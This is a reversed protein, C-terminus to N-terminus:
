QNWKPQGDRGHRHSRGMPCSGKVVHLVKKTRTELKAWETMGDSQQFDWSKLFEGGESSQRERWINRLGILKVAGSEKARGRELKAWSLQAKQLFDIFCRGELARFFSFFVSGPRRTRSAPSLAVGISTCVKGNRPTWLCWSSWVVTSGSMSQSIDFIIYWVNGIWSRDIAIGDGEVFSAWIQNAMDKKPLSPNQM